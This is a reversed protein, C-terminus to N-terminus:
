RFSEFINNENLKQSNKERENRSFINKLIDFEHFM